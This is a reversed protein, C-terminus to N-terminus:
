GNPFAERVVKDLEDLYDRRIGETEERIAPYFFRGHSGKGGPGKGTWPRFQRFRDSGFEQGLAYPVTKRGIKVQMKTQSASARISRPVRGRRVSYHRAYRARANVAVREGLRKNVQGIQRGLQRDVRNLARRFENLGHIQVVDGNSIAM